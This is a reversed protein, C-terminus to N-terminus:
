ILVNEIGLDSILKIVGPSTLPGEPDNDRIWNKVTAQGVDKLAAIKIQINDKNNKLTEIAEQSLKNMHKKKSM